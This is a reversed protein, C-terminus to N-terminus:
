WLAACMANSRRWGSWTGSVGRAARTSRGPKTVCNLSHIRERSSRRGMGALGRTSSSRAGTIMTAM